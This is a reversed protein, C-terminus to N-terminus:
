EKETNYRAMFDHFGLADRNLTITLPETASHKKGSVTVTDGDKLKQIAALLHVTKGEVEELILQQTASEGNRHSLYTIIREEYTAKRKREGKSTQESKWDDFPVDLIFNRVVDAGSSEILQAKIITPPIARGIRTEAAIIRHASESYLAINTDVEGRLATSGLIGDQPDASSV